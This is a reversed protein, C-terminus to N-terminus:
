MHYKSCLCMVNDLIQTCTILVGLKSQNKKTVNTQVQKTKHTTVCM